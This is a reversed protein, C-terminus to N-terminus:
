ERSLRGHELFDVVAEGRGVGEGVPCDCAGEFFADADFPRPGPLTGPGLVTLTRPLILPSFSGPDAVGTIEVESGLPVDPRPGDGPMVGRIIARAINVYIGASEDQVFLSSERARTVVARVRVEPHRALDAAPLARIEAIPTLVDGGAAALGAAAGLVAAAILLAGAAARPSPM